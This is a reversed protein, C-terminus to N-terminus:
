HAMGAATEDEAEVLEVSVGADLALMEVMAVAVEDRRSCRRLVTGRLTGGDGRWVVVLAIGQIRHPSVDMAQALEAALFDTLHQLVAPADRETDDKITKTM